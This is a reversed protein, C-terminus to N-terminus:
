LEARLRVMDVCLIGNEFIPEPYSKFYDTEVGCIRFGCKQYLALQSLSSNGTGVEIAKAGANKALAKAENIMMKAIGQGQFEPLVAINKLESVEATNIVAAIGVVVNRTKCVLVKSAPLYSLVAQKDPDAMLLLDMLEATIEGTYVQINM